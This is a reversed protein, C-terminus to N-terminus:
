KKLFKSVKKLIFIKKKIFQNIKLYFYKPIIINKEKFVRNLLDINEAKGILKM